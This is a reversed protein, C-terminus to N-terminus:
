QSTRFKPLVEGSAIGLKLIERESADVMEDNDYFEWLSGLLDVSIRRRIPFGLIQVLLKHEILKYDDEMPPEPFAPIKAMHEQEQNDYSNINDNVMLEDVCTETYDDFLFMLKIALYHLKKDETHKAWYSDWVKGVAVTCISTFLGFVLTFTNDM